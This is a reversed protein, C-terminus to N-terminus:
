INARQARVMEALRRVGENIQDPDLHSYSLRMQNRGGDGLYFDRMPAWLVGHEKTSLELLQTDVEMPLTLRVFFGGSPKNWEIGCTWEEQAPFNRDLAALLTDRNNKYFPLKAAMSNKLTFNNKLLYGGVIAQCLPPTNNTIMSKIKSLEDSLLHEASEDLRQDAVMFGIRLGPFLTKSFTGIHLVRGDTNLAKLSPIFQRDFAFHGYTSDEIIMFDYFKSLELIQHRQELSMRLGTPNSFDPCCYLLSPRQGIARAMLIAKELAEFDIEDDGSVVPYTPIGLIKAAGTFGVYAPECVIVADSSSGCLASLALIMAEQAGVTILVADPHVDIQADAILMQAIIEHILGKTRGYQGLANFARQLTAGQTQDTHEVYYQICSLMKEVDFFKECPHGAAFSIADPYKKSIENLFIVSSLVHNDLSRNLGGSKM